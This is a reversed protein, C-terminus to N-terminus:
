PKQDTLLASKPGPENNLISLNDYCSVHVGDGYRYTSCHRSTTDDRGENSHWLPKRRHKCCGPLSQIDGYITGNKEVETVREERELASCPNCPFGHYDCIHQSLSFILEIFCVHFKQRIRLCYLRFIRPPVHPWFKDGTCDPQQIKLIYSDGIM